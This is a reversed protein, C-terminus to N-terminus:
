NTRSSKKSVLQFCVQLLLHDSSLYRHPQPGLDLLVHTSPLAKRSLLHFGARKKTPPTFFIYDVTEFASQHFTTVTSPTSIRSQPYATVFKFPHTILGQIHCLPRKRPESRSLQGSHAGPASNSNSQSEVRAKTSVNVVTANSKQNEDGTSEREWEMDSDETSADGEIDTPSNHAKSQDDSTHLGSSSLQSDSSSQSVKVTSKPGGTLSPFDSMKIGSYSMGRAKAGRASRTKSYRKSSLGDSSSAVKFRENQSQVFDGAGSAGMPPAVAKEQGAREEQQSSGHSSSSHPRKEKKSLVDNKTSGGAVEAVGNATPTTNTATTTDTETEMYMCNPGINMSPPLLPSPIVRSGGKKHDYGAIETASMKSYNLFSSTIFDVLPSNPTSNFDGCLVIPLLGGSGALPFTLM